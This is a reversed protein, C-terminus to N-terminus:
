KRNAEKMIEERKKQCPKCVRAGRGDYALAEDETEFRLWSPNSGKSHCCCGQFHITHTQPNYLVNKGM